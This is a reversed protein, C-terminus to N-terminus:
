LNHLCHHTIFFVQKTILTATFYTLTNTLNCDLVQMCTQLICMYAGNYLFVAITTVWLLLQYPFVCQSIVDCLQDLVVNVVGCKRRLRHIPRILQLMLNSKILFAQLHYVSWSVPGMQLNCLLHLTKFVVGLQLQRRIDGKETVILFSNLFIKQSCQRFSM